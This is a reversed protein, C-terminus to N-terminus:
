QAAADPESWIMLSKVNKALVMYDGSGNYKVGTIGEGDQNLEVGTM